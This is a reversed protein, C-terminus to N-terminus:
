EVASRLFLNINKYDIIDCTIYTVVTRSYALYFMPLIHKCQTKPKKRQDNQGPLVNITQKSYYLIHREFVFLHCVTFLFYFAIAHHIIFTTDIIKIIQKPQCTGVQRLGLRKPM